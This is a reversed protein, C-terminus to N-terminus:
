FRLRRSWEPTQLSEQQSKFQNLYAELALANKPEGAFHYAEILAEILMVSEKGSVERFVLRDIGENLVSIAQAYLRKSILAESLTM